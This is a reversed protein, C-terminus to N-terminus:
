GSFTDVYQSHIQTNSMILNYNELIKDLMLQSRVEGYAEMEVKDQYELMSRADLRKFEDKELCKMILSKLVPDFKTSYRELRGYMINQKIEM